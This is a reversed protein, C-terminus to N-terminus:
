RATDLRFTAPAFARLPISFHNNSVQVPEGIPSGRFDTPQAQEIHLGPPLQIRCDGSQGAQEWLRLVLGEGDPNPGFATVAVGKRSLELGSQASPLRGAPGDAAVACLPFRAEEAPTVLNQAADDGAVTWLRVRSTWTGQNWLRFNTSWQNNFLNVYVRPKRPSFVKSYKWAGPEGLSVLPHDLPCIGVGRRSADTITLGSNIALIDVNCNAVLDRTPDVISGLRGLRFQPSDIRFPLCMWGAEPWPDAPKDHLTLELDICPLDRHLTVRTTVGHSLNPGASAELIAFVSAPTQELRCIFNTPSVARYPFQAAPPVVPKGLENIAWDANIKVYAKVYAAVQDHDFREYLYQGLGQPAAADVLEKGSKKDILSRIVGRAPDLALKFWRNELTATARDISLGGGTSPLKAPVFTRYGMPPINPAVFGIKGDQFEVSTRDSSDAARLATFDCNTGSLDVWGTRKWPLPNYVVIRQGDVQVAQALAKLEDDLLPAVLRSATEIYATHEAWSAELRKFRGQAEDAKWVDGYGWKTGAGYQTVWSQAGGWTHEGYLLSQEYAKAITSAPDGAPVGWARLQSYLGEAIRIMPRTNRALRAGAPDSMPGHIWTDPMDGRVIALQPHEALIEDAFDSLRGIRIKVGPLKQAAEKLLAQVEAPTPPGHNDGTHILALWTRHPWNAPPVLGTGYGEATYMTLLRSGDPGQWWFLTPVAPSSSAANCGLHLFQVGAHTLLTPLIWSHSPVDTMKADRPLPLGLRRSFRSSFGLGRVLDEAELLETHTTFPLAHVLFRGDRFAQLVRQKREPLQGPWDAVIQSVPWGPLTWAFQQEPPLDRNKDVVKLADDIMTTRYRQVVNSAMDTYGIDFHTKFVIVVQQVQSAPAEAALTTKCASLILGLALLFLPRM